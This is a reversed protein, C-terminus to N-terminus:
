NAIKDHDRRATARQEEVLAEVRESYELAARTRARVADLLPGMTADTPLEAALKVAVDLERLVERLSVLSESLEPPAQPSLGTQAAIELSPGDISRVHGSLQRRLGAIDASLAAYGRQDADAWARTLNVLEVRNEAGYRELLRSIHAKVGQESIGLEAAVEKNTAGRAVMRVIQHQRPTLPRDKAM